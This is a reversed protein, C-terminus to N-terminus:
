RILWSPETRNRADSGPLQPPGGTLFIARWWRLDITASTPAASAFVTTLVVAKAGGNAAIAGSVMATTGIGGPGAANAHGITAMFASSM